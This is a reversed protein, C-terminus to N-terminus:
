RREQLDVAPGNSDIRLQVVALALSGTQRGFDNGPGLRGLGAGKRSPKRTSERLHSLFFKVQAPVLRVSNRPHLSMFRFLPGLFPREFVLAGAVHMVRGLGEEFFSVNVSTSGASCVVSIPTSAWCPM